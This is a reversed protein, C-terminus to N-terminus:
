RSWMVRAMQEAKCGGSFGAQLVGDGLRQAALRAFEGDVNRGAVLGGVPDAEADFALTLQGVHMDLLSRKMRWLSM